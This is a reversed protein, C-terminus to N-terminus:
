RRARDNGLDHFNKEVATTKKSSIPAPLAFQCNAGNRWESHDGTAGIM